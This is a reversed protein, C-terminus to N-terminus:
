LKGNLKRMEKELYAELSKKAAKELIPWLKKIIGKFLKKREAKTM